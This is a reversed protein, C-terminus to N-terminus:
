SREPQHKAEPYVLLACPALLVTAIIGVTITVGISSMAPNDSFALLGFGLLTTLAAFLMGVFTAGTAGGARTEAMFVGYDVGMASILLLSVLHLLDLEVGALTLIALTLGCGGIAPLSAMLIMDRRRYRVAVLALIAILGLGIALAAHDRYSVYADNMFRRQDIYRAGPVDAIAAALADPDHVGQLFTLFGVQGGVEIRFPRIISALPSAMLAHYDLPAPPPAALADHLPAFVGARFGAAVFAPELREGLRAATIAALNQRQLDESWLFSTLTRFAGLQGAAQARALREAIAEDVHLAQQESAGLAVIVRGPEVGSIRARVANDEAVLAPDRKMLAGLDDSMHLFPLAIVGLAVAGLSLVMLVKRHRGAAHILREFRRALREAHPLARTVPSTLPPLVVRTVVIAALVGSAAVVGVEGLGPLGSAALAGFGVITTLAGLWLGSWTHALTQAPTRGLEGLVHVSFFHIPYDICVGILTSAFALTLGHLRGFVALGTAIGVLMGSVLPLNALLFIRLSRYLWLFLLVIASMSIISIRTIDSEVARRGQVGFMHIGARELIVPVGLQASVEARADDLAALLPEQAAADLPSHKTGLFVIAHTGDHTVFRGDELALDGPRAADFRKLLAAFLMLPDAPALRKLAAGMPDAFMQQLAQAASTLGADSTLVPVDRAPEPSVFMFRRPFYLEYTAQEVDPRVGGELWAVEPNTRVIAAFAESARAATASDAVGLSVVLTRSLESDALGAVLDAEEPDDMTALFHTVDSTVVMHTAAFVGALVLVALVLLPGILRSSPWRSRSM